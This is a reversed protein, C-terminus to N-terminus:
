RYAYCDCFTPDGTQPDIIQYPPKGRSPCTQCRAEVIPSLKIEGHLGAEVRPDYFYGPDNAPLAIRNTPAQPSSDNM